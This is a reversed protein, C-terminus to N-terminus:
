YLVSLARLDEKWKSNVLEQRGHKSALWVILWVLFVWLKLLVMGSYLSKM